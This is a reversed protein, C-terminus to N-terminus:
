GTARCNAYTIKALRRINGNPSIESLTEFQDTPSAFSMMLFWLNGDPGVALRSAVDEYNTPLPFETVTGDPTIKDIAFYSSGITGDEVFWITGNPGSTVDSFRNTPNPLPFEKITASLVLRSELMDLDL